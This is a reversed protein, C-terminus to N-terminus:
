PGAISATGPGPGGTRGARLTRYREIDAQFQNRLNGEESRREEVSQRQRRVENVTRVLDEALQDPMRRATQATNYPRFTQARAQLTDLRENLTDIYTEMSRRQDALQELRRDRLTEIDRVSTYTTLLFSDHDRQKRAAEARANDVALQEATREAALRRLEVGERNLVARERKAYEPPVRDGYHVVGKDDTWKYAGGKGREDAATPSSWAAVLTACLACALAARARSSARVSPLRLMAMNQVM